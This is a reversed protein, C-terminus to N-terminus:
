HALCSSTLSPSSGTEDTGNILFAFMNRSICCCLQCGCSCLIEGAELIPPLFSASTPFLLQNLWNAIDPVLFMFFGYHKPINFDRTKEETRAGLHHDSGYNKMDTYMGLLSLSLESCSNNLTILISYEHVLILWNIWM